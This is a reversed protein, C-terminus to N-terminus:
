FYIYIFWTSINDIEGAGSIYTFSGLHYITQKERVSAIIQTDRESDKAKELQKKERHIELQRYKIYAERYRTLSKDTYRERDSQRKIHTETYRERELKIEAGGRILM